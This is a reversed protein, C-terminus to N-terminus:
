EGKHTNNKWLGVNRQRASREAAKFKEKYKFPYKTYAFGFGDYVLRYNLFFSDEERFVYALLRGYRDRKNQDFQLFVNQHEMAKKTYASAEKGFYQVKKKPHKTEPTNVGILRIKETEELWAKPTLIKVEITDGDVCRNVYAKVTESTETNNQTFPSFSFDGNKLIPCGMIIALAIYLMRRKNRKIFHNIITKM